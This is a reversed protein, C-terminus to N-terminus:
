KQLARLKLKYELNHIKVNWVLSCKELREKSHIDFLDGCTPCNEQIPLIAKKLEEIQQSEREQQEKDEPFM